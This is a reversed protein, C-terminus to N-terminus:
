NKYPLLDPNRDKMFKQLLRIIDSAVNCIEFHANPINVVLACDTQTFTIKSVGDVNHLQLHLESIEQESFRHNTQVYFQRQLADEGTKKALFPPADEAYYYARIASRVTEELLGQTFYVPYVTFNYHADSFEINAEDVGLRNALFVAFSHDTHRFNTEVKYRNIRLDVPTISVLVDKRPLPHGIIRRLMPELQRLLRQKTLDDNHCYVASNADQCVARTVGPLTSFIRELSARHAQNVTTPPSVTVIIEATDTDCLSQTAYVSVEVPSETTITTMDKRSWDTEPNNHHL